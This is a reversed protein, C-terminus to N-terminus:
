TTWKVDVLKSKYMEGRRMGAEIRKIELSILYRMGRDYIKAAKELPIKKSDPPPLPKVKSKKIEERREKGQQQKEKSLAYLRNCGENPAVENPLVAKSNPHSRGGSDKENNKAKSSEYLQLYRPSSNPQRMKKTSKHRRTAMELHPKVTAAIRRADEIKRQQKLAQHYLRQGAMESVSVIHENDSHNTMDGNVIEKKSCHSIPIDEMLRLMLIERDTKMKPDIM